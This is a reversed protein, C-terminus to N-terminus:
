YLKRYLIFFLLNRIFRPEKDLQRWFFPQFNENDEIQLFLLIKAPIIGEHWNVEVWDYWPSNTTYAPDGRFIYLDRNHQTFFSFTINNPINICIDHLQLQFFSDEWNCKCLQAKCRKDKNKFSCISLTRDFTYRFWKNTINIDSTNTTTTPNCDNTSISAFAMNISINEIQRQATQLEFLKRRRQTNQAPNKAETKHHSEGIGTDFNSMSGFRLIDDAFHNPLHFKIIKMQCGTQRNLTTKLENLIYPM